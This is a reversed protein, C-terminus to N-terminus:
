EVRISDKNSLISFIPTFTPVNYMSLSNKLLFTIELYILVFQFKYNCSFGVLFYLSYKFLVSLFFSISRSYKFILKLFPSWSEVNYFHPIFFFFFNLKFFFFFPDSLCMQLVSVQLIDFFISYLFQIYLLFSKLIRVHELDGTALVSNKTICHIMYLM